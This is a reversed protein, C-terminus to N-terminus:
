RKDKRSCTREPCKGGGLAIFQVLKWAFDPDLEPAGHISGSYYIQMDKYPLETSTSAEKRAM